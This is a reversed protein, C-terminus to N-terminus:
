SFFLFSSPRYYSKHTYSRYKYNMTTTYLICVSLVLCSFLNHYTNFVALVLQFVHRIIHTYKITYSRVSVFDHTKLMKILYPGNVYCSDIASLSHASKAFIFRNYFYFVVRINRSHEIRIEMNIIIYDVQSFNM